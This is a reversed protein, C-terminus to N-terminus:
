KGRHQICSMEGQIQYKMCQAPGCKLTQREYARGVGFFTFAVLGLVVIILFGLYLDNATSRKM